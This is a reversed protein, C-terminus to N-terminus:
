SFAGPIAAFQENAQQEQKYKTIAKIVDRDSDADTFAGDKMLKKVTGNWWHAKAKEDDEEPYFDRVAAFVTPWDRKAAERGIPPPNGNGLAASTIPTINGPQPTQAPAPANSRTAQPRGNGNANRPATPSDALHDADSELFQTGYGAHGLARGIAATEAKELSRGSWVANGKDNASGLGTALVFGEANRVTAKVTLVDFPLVDTEICGHPHEDRFWAIRWKTELYKKGKLEIVHKQADFTM